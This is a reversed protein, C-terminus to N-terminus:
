LTVNCYEVVVVVVDYINYKLTRENNTKKKSDRM